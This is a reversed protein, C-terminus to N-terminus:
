KGIKLYQAKGALIEAQLAKDFAALDVCKDYQSLTKEKDGLAKYCGLMMANADLLNLTDINPINILKELRQLAKQYDGSRSISLQALAFNVRINNPYAKDVALLKQAGTMPPVTNDVSSLEVYMLAENIQHAVTDPEIKKAEEFAHLAKKVAYQKHLPDKNKEYGEAYTTGTISWALGTPQLEAVKEAYYGGVIFDGWENWQRSLSKLLEVEESVNAAKAKQQELSDLQKQQLSDLGKRAELLVSQDNLPQVTEDPQGKKNKPTTPMFFYLLGFLVVAFILVSIQRQNM